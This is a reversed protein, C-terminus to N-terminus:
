FADKKKNISALWYHVSASKGLTYNVNRWRRDCSCYLRSNTLLVTFPDNTKLDICYKRPKTTASWPLRWLGGGKMFLASRCQPILSFSSSCKKHTIFVPSPQVLQTYHAWIVISNILTPVRECVDSPRARCCVQSSTSKKDIMNHWLIFSVLLSVLLSHPATTLYDNLFLFASDPIDENKTEKKRIKEKTKNLTLSQTLNLILTLNIKESLKDCVAWAKLHRWM